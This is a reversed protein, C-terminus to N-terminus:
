VQGQALAARTLNLHGGATVLVNDEIRIGGCPRLTEVAQWDVLRAGGAARLDELLTDIIYIGPEITLVMGPELTRTLRLFPADAPRQIPTGERDAQLGGVDHVQLGLLHGLGHPFFARVTGREMAEDTGCRLIGSDVLLAGIRQMASHHLDRFDAGPRVDECLRRQLTDMAVLLDNFLGSRATSHTRTVDAAYGGHSAGADILLSHRAPPAQTDVRQYHLVAAHRNLGIIPNYPLQQPSQGAAECYRMLIDFESTTGDFAAAASRHGAAAMRSARRICEVEWPTKCARDYDLHHLLAAPNVAAPRWDGLGEEPGLWAAGEPLRQLADAPTPCPVLEFADGWVPGPAPPPMHWFDQSTPYYLVPREGPTYQVFADPHEVLATWYVFYPNPRYPYTHDDRFIYVPPGSGIVLCPHGTAALAADTREMVVRLHDRYLAPDM